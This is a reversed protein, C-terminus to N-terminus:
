TQTPPLTMVRYAQLKRTAAAMTELRTKKMANQMVFSSKELLDKSKNKMEISFLNFINDMRSMKIFAINKYLYM